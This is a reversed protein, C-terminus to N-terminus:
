YRLKRSTIRTGLHSEIAIAIKYLWSWRPDRHMPSQGIIWSNHHIVPQIDVSALQIRPFVSLIRKEKTLLAM